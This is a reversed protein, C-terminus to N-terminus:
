LIHRNALPGNPGSRDPSTCDLEEFATEYGLVWIHLTANGIPDTDLTQEGWDDTEEMCANTYFCSYNSLFELTVSLQACEGGTDLNEDAVFPLPLFTYSDIHILRNWTEDEECCEPCYDDWTLVPGITREVDVEDIGHYMVQTRIDDPCWNNWEAFIGYEERPIKGNVWVSSTDDLLDPSNYNCWIALAYEQYAERLRGDPDTAEFYGDWEAQDLFRSLAWMDPRYLDPSYEWRRWEYLAHDSFEIGGEFHEQLYAAFMGYPRYRQAGKKADAYEYPPTMILCREWYDDRGIGKEFPLDHEQSLEAYGERYDVYLWESAKSFLETTGDRHQCTGPYGPPTSGYPYPHGGFKYDPANDLSCWVTHQFEHVFRDYVMEEVPDGTRYLLKLSSCGASSNGGEDQHHIKIDFHRIGDLDITHYDIEEDDDGWYQAIFEAPADKIDPPANEPFITNAFLAIDDPHWPWMLRWVDPGGYIEWSVM